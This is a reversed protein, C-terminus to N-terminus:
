PIPKEIRALQPFLKWWLGAIGVAALGGLLAAPVVGFWVAMAGARFEGLTGSTGTFVTNVAMVRGLMENPTRTQILSQRIVVSVADAAGYIALAVMSLWFWQSLAFVVVAMGFIAVSGLLVFGARREIAWRTLLISMTLAGVAPAARLLGLGEPGTALVDRAFVPLLATVGGCLFAFLDLSIAGLLIPQRRLYTFGAFVTQLTVPKRDLPRVPKPLLSILVAAIAFTAACIGYVVGPGYLYLFGGVAPGAIVATQLATASAAIARPLIEMPVIGPLIAHLTPIEIARATGGVLLIALIVDREIWGAVSAAALLFACCAKTIQCLAAIRRRDFRDVIQGAFVGMLVFPFFQVLGVLGLDFPDNTLAYIQWGVAVALMQFAGNTFTRASWFMMFVPHRLLSSRSQAVQEM